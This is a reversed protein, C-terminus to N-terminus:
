QKRATTKNGNRRLLVRIWVILRGVPRQLPPIDIALLLLGAPLMWLGLIPLISFVGGLVLLFAVPVRVPRWRKKSIWELGRAIRPNEQRLIRFQRQFRARAKRTSSLQM